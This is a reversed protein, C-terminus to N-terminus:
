FFTKEILQSRFSIYVINICLDSCKNFFICVFHLRYFIFNDRLIKESFENECLLQMFFVKFISKLMYTRSYKWIINHFYTTVSSDHPGSTLRCRMSPIIESSRWQRIECATGSMKTAIYRRGETSNDILWGRASYSQLLQDTLWVTM